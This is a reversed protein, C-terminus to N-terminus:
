RREFTIYAKLICIITGICIITLSQMIDERDQDRSKRKKQSM